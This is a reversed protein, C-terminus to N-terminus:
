AGAAVGTDLGLTRRAILGYFTRRQEAARQLWAVYGAHDQLRQHARAAWFAAAARVAASSTTGAANEFCIQALDIHGLRWAALGAVFGIEGAPQDPRAKHLTGM